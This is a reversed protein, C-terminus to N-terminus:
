NHHFDSGTVGLHVGTLTIKMDAAHTDTQSVTEATNSTNVLVQTSGGVEMVAVSHANLTHNGTGSLYGQFSPTGSTSNIGAIATFDIKDAGHQFDKIIDGAAATSEAASNYVFSDKGTGGILRDQGLGGTLTDNAGNGALVDKGSTGTLVDVSTSGALVNGGSHSENGALDTANVGYTHVNGAAADATFTFRGKSDATAFGLWTNGDYVSLVDGASATSGSITVKGNSMTCDTFVVASGKTDFTFTLSDADTVATTDVGSSAVVTHTGNALKTPTYSWTGDTDAIATTKADTGNITFHVVTGPDATGTLLSSATIKDTASAGTDHGLKPKVAGGGTDLTFAVSASGINGATDIRSAVITHQGDGLGSPTFSWKGTAGAQATTTISSGDVAINVTTNPAATGTVTADSTIKDTASTGTDHALKATVAPAKTDLTFTLSTNGTQGDANTQRAAITHEGDGLGAPTFSWKGAADATATTSISTGDIKFKVVSGPDATGTIIASSTIKDTASSGTDSALAETVIPTVVTGGGPPDVTGGGPDSGTWGTPDGIPVGAAGGTVVIGPGAIVKGGGAIALTGSGQLNAIVSPDSGAGYYEGSVGTMNVQGGNLYGGVAVKQAGWTSFTDDVFTSSGGVVAATGGNNEFGSGKVLTIGATADIGVGVNEVFYANKVTMDKAGNDLILGAVDNKRFGGGIWFLSDAVGGKPGNAFRAGGGENGNMWSDFITGHVNGIVDLGIGGVHEINVANLSLNRISRDAGDAVIKIGDGESGNGNILLNSITLQSVNVGAGVIIEIVPGGNSVNSQLKAGGFDINIPGQSTNTLNIVIPANVSYSSQTLHADGTAVAAKLATEVAGTGNTTAMAATTATTVADLTPLSIGQSSVSVEALNGGGAGSVSLSSGTVIKGSDGSTFVGGYGNLNALTTPDAGAGTWHSSNDVVTANGNLWGTVGVAQTGSTTFTNNDFNGYNQFWVGQGKNDIFESNSVATIGSGASIGGDQNGVFRAGDVSMDRVGNDLTMGAGRNNQFGGGSWRLASAQGDNLHSFYAGGKVNNNMWSDAVIGEFVSGQVDLGYGGVHNVTVNNVTFNYVWRDNAAAVVQIGDGEHGNGQITFNSFTLYRLDVNPGVVVKIVPSGDTINSVITGGGLDLGLPGQTTSNVYIVISSSVTFTQGSGNAVYSGAMAAQLISALDTADNGIATTAM